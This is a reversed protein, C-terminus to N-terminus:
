KGAAEVGAGDQRHDVVVGHRDLRDGAAHLAAEVVVAGRAQRRQGVAPVVDVHEVRGEQGAVTLVQLVHHVQGVALVQTLANDHRRQRVVALLADFDQHAAVGALQHV